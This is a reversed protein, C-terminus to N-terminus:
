DEESGIISKIIKPIDTNDLYAGFKEAGNGKSFVPVASATHHFSTFGISARDNIIRICSISIPCYVYYLRDLEEKSISEPNFKHKYATELYEIEAETLEFGSKFFDTKITELITKFNSQNLQRITKDICSLSIGQYNVISFDSKYANKNLGTTLGGTEHDSTVIILTNDPFQQYFDLAYGIANDFDIMDMIIAAADNDHAAWDIKGGEIMIFFGDENFLHQIASKTFDALAFGGEIDRDIAYPMSGDSHIFPNLLYQKDYSKNLDKIDTVINYGSKELLEYIDEANNDIDKPNRIGGGGLFNIDSDVLQQAINYYSSRSASNAYFAAPTAHNLSVSSVIGTKFGSQQAFQLISLKDKYEGDFYAIANNNEKIGYALATGAAASCTIQSNKSFTNVYGHVPLGTMNLRNASIIGETNALYAETLSIHSYGMGDGIFLFIYKLESKDSKIDSTYAAFTQIM